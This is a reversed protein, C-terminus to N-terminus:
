LCAMLIQEKKMSLRVMDKDDVIGDADKYSGDPNQEGRVDRYILMGPKIQDPKYGMFQTINYDEVFKDIEAQNRFMGLCDYGWQGMDVPGNRYFMKTHQYQGALRKQRYRADRWQGNLQVSYNFDSM